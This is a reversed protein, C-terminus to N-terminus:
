HNLKSLDIPITNNKNSYKLLEEASATEKNMIPAAAYHDVYTEETQKKDKPM